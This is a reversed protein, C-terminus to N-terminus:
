KIKELNERSYTKRGKNLGHINEWDGDNDMRGSVKM